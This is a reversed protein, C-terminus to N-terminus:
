QRFHFPRGRRYLSLQREFAAADAQSGEARAATVARGAVEVADAFRGAEALAAARTSLVVAPPQACLSMATGSLQLAEAGDRHVAFEHTARIWAINVLADLDGPASALILRFEAIGEEVRAERTLLAALERRAELDDPRSALINRLRDETGIPLGLSSELQAAAERVRGQELLWRGLWRQAARRALLDEGATTIVRECWTGSDRWYRVQRSTAVALTTVTAVAVLLAGIRHGRARGAFPGAVGWTVAVALGIGPIYTFRDAWAHGGTQVLGSAPALTVLYWLWGTALWPRAVRQRVAFWTMAALGAGAAVGLFGPQVTYGHFPALGQPWATLAVYRWASVMANAARRGVSYFEHDAMAGTRQHLAYTIAACVVALGLLPLKEIVLARWSTRPRGDHPYARRLPWVDLVLLLLPFSVLMPKSWLGLLLLIAVAAYRRRSPAATWKVWALLALLLFFTSLVDKREAIWAVSEVRLPHVAFLAAAVLSRWWAGTLRHLVIVLLMANLVHLALNTVHHGGADLGYLSVDTMHSVATVPVWNAGHDHKLFYLLGDPTLGRSVVPHRYVNLSDDVIIWDHSPLAAFAVVTLAALLALSALRMRM